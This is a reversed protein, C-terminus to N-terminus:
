FAVVSDYAVPTTNMVYQTRELGIEALSLATLEVPRSLIREGLSDIGNSTLYHEPFLSSNPQVAEGRYWNVLSTSNSNWSQNLGNLTFFLLVLSFASVQVLRAPNFFWLDKLSDTLRVTLSKSVLQQNRQRSHFESLVGSFYADSPVEERLGALAKQVKDMNEMNEMSM